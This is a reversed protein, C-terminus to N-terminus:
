NKHGTFIRETVIYICFFILSTKWSFPGCSLNEISPWAPPSFSNNNKPHDLIRPVGVTGGSNPKLLSLGEKECMLRRINKTAEWGLNHWDEKQFINDKKWKILKTKIKLYIRFKSAQYAWYRNSSLKERVLSPSILDMVKMFTVVPQFLFNRNITVM